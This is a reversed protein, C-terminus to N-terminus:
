QDQDDESGPQQQWGLASLAATDADSLPASALLDPRRELTRALAQSRRWRAIAAHDGSTLVDPVQWGRYEAPRTYQPHQLLGSTHTDDKLADEGHGLTGPLLRVVADTVVLAAPEGGSLVYDGISLEETALHEAVREDVGDYRGCLLVLTDLRAFREADAQAFPRGQPSLLVIPAAQPLALAEVAEFLPPAMMVMGPEGGFPADDVTRHRDTSFERPDHTDVTVIGARRARGLVGAEFAAELMDPFITVIHIHM